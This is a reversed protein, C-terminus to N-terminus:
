RTQGKISFVTILFTTDEAKFCFVVAIWLGDPERGEIRYKWEGTKIDQESPAYICGCELVHLADSFVLNENRLEDRFHRSQIVAGDLLCRRVLEIAESKSFERVGL